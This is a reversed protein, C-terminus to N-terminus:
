CEQYKKLEQKLFLKFINAQNSFNENKVFMQSPPYTAMVVMIIQTFCKNLLGSIKKRFEQKIFIM